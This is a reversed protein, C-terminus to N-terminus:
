AASVGRLFELVVVRPYLGAGLPNTEPVRSRTIEPLTMVNLVRDPPVGGKRAMLVGWHM